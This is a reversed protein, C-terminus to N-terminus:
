KFIYTESALVRYLKYYSYALLLIATLDLPYRVNRIVEEGVLNLSATISIVRGSLFLVGSFAIAIIAKFAEDRKLFLRAAVLEGKGRM